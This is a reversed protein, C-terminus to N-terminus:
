IIQIRNIQLYKIGNVRLFDCIQEICRLHRIIRPKVGADFWVTRNEYGQKEIQISIHSRPM